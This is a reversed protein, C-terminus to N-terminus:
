MVMAAATVAELHQNSNRTLEAAHSTPPDLRSHPVHHALGPAILELHCLQFLSLVLTKSILLM